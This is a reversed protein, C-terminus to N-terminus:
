DPPAIERMAFSILMNILELREGLITGMARDDALYGSYQLASHYLEVALLQLLNHQKEFESYNRTEAMRAIQEITENEANIILDFEQRQLDIQKEALSVLEQLHEVESAQGQSRRVDEITKRWTDLKGSMHDSGSHLLVPLHEPSFRSVRVTVPRNSLIARFAAVIPQFRQDEESPFPDVADQARTLEMGEAEAFKRLVRFDQSNEVQSHAAGENSGSTAAPVVEIAKLGHEQLVQDIQYRDQPASSMVYIMMNKLEALKKMQAPTPAEVRRLRNTAPDREYLDRNAADAVYDGLTQRERSSTFFSLHSALTDFLTDNELVGHKLEPAFLAQVRQMDRDRGALANLGQFVQQAVEEQLDSFRSDRMVDERSMVMTLDACDIIGDCFLVDEPLIGPCDKRVLMGKSYLDASRHLNVFSRDDPIWVVGQVHVNAGPMIPIVYVPPNMPESRHREVVYNRLAEEDNGMGDHWPVGSEYSNLCEGYRDRIPYRLLDGYDTVATRWNERLFSANEDDTVRVRVETGTERRDIRRMQAQPHLGEAVWEVGEDASTGVRRTLIRVEDGLKFNALLGIGFQGILDRLVDREEIQGRMAETGSNGIRNIYETVDDWTMGIGTDCVTFVRNSDDWHVTVELRTDYDGPNRNIEHKKLSLADIANALMERLAASPHPYLSRAMLPLMRTSEVTIEHDSWENRDSMM